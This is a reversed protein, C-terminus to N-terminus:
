FSSLTYDLPIHNEWQAGFGFSAETLNPRVFAGGWGAAERKPELEWLEQGSSGFQHSLHLLRLRPHCRSTTHSLHSSQSILDPSQELEVLKHSGPGARARGLFCSRQQCTGQGISCLRIERQTYRDIQTYNHRLSTGPMNALM